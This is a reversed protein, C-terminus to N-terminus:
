FASPDAALADIQEDNLTSKSAQWGASVSGTLKLLVNARLYLVKCSDDRQVAAVASIVDDSSHVHRGCVAMLRDGNLLLKSVPSEQAVNTVVMGGPALDVGARRLAVGQVPVFEKLVALRRANAGSLERYHGAVAAAAIETYAGLAGAYEGQRQLGKAQWWLANDYANRDPYETIVKSFYKAAASWDDQVVLKHYGLEVLVDDRLAHEDVEREYRQLYDFSTEYDSILRSVSGILYLATAYDEPLKDSLAPLCAILFSRVGRAWTKSLEDEDIRIMPRLRRYLPLCREPRLPGAIIALAKQLKAQEGVLRQNCQLRLPKFKACVDTSLQLAGKFDGAATLERLADFTQALADDAAADLTEKGRLVAVFKLAEDLAGAHALRKVLERLAGIYHPSDPYQSVLMKLYDVDRVSSGLRVADVLASDRISSEPLEKILEDFRDLFYLAFDANPVLKVQTGRRKERLLADLRAHDAPEVTWGHDARLVGARLNEMMGFSIHPWFESFDARGCQRRFKAAAAEAYTSGNKVALARLHAHVAFLFPREGPPRHRYQDCIFQLGPEHLGQGYYTATVLGRIQDAGPQDPNLQLARAYGERASGYDKAKFKDDAYLVMALSDNEAVRMLWPSLFSLGVLTISFVFVLIIGLRLFRYLATQTLRTNLARDVIRLVAQNNITWFSLLMLLALAFASFAYQEAIRAVLSLLIGM